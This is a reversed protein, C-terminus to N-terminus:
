RLNGHLWCFNYAGGVLYLGATLVAEQHALVRGRRM